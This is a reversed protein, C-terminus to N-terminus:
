RITSSNSQVPPTWTEYLPAACVEIKETQLLKKMSILCFYRTAIATDTECVEKRIQSMNCRAEDGHNPAPVVQTIAENAMDQEDLKKITEDMASHKRGSTTKYVAKFFKHAYEYLGADILSLSGIRRIDECVHNLMHWKVTGINSAQTSGFLAVGEHMFIGINEQLRSIEEENWRNNKNHGCVMHMIDVYLTFVTTVPAYDLGCIRDILAGLFPSVNDLNKLDKAELMGALGEENFYGNMGKRGEANRIGYGSPGEDCYVWSDEIFGNMQRIVTNRITSFPKFCRSGARTVKMRDTTRDESKLMDCACQKLMKSIGLHFVHMPETGFISYIDLKTSCGVFPFDSLVPLEPEISNDKLLDRASDKLRRAHAPVRDWMQQSMTNYELVKNLIMRTEKLTRRDTDFARALDERGVHCRPCPKPTRNSHKVCLLDKQEPIDACYSCLAFHLRLCHDDKTHCVIGRYAVDAMPKMITEIVEHIIGVKEIRNM